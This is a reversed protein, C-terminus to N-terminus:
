LELTAKESHTYFPKEGNHATETTGALEPTMQTLPEWHRLSRVRHWCAIGGVQSFSM